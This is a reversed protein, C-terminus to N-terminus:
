VDFDPENLAALLALMDEPLDSEWSMEEETRPHILTIKKAHLAQRGFNRLADKLFDSAKAPIKLRGAYTTDGVLPYKIHAM